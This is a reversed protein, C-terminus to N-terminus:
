THSCCHGIASAFCCVINCSSNAISFFALVCVSIDNQKWIEKMWEVINEGTHRDTCLLIDLLLHNIDWKQDIWHATICVYSEHDPASWLDTTFSIPHQPNPCVSSSVVSSPQASPVGLAAASVLHSIAPVPFEDHLLHKQVAKM